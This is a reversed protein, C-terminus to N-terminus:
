MLGPLWLAIQPFTMILLIGIIDILIFPLTAKYIDMMSVDPPVIAKMVFLLFGFPPTKMSIEMSILTILAFWIESFGLNKVVPLFIPMSIMMIAVPEMFTGLVLIVGQMILLIVLAPVDLSSTFEVLGASAGSYALIQSFALSGALIMFMMSIIQLTGSVTEYIIKKNLKGSCGAIILSSLAGLASSETPTAIGLFILGVVLFIIAALPIFHVLTFTLKEKLTLSEEAQDHRPALSPNLVCRGVIYMCYMIALFFGPIIGGVLIKGVSIQCISALVVALASPPIIMALGGSMCSGIGIRYSYGNRKMEPLMTTGLMATTGMSSGSLSSFLTGAGITVLCLRGPIKGLWKNVVNVANFALGSHFLIEGMLVFMLVPLMTFSSVSTYISHIMQALGGVGGWLLYSGIINLLLFCFAVPLGTALVLILAGFILMLVTYWEM